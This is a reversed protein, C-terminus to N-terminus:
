AVLELEEEFADTEYGDEFKIRYMTGTEEIDYTEPNLPAFVTVTQGERKVLEKESTEPDNVYRNFTALTPTHLAM